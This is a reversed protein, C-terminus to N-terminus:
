KKSGAWPLKKVGWAPFGTAQIGAGVLVALILFCVAATFSGFMM